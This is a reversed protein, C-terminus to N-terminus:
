PQPIEGQGTTEQAQAAALRHRRLKEWLCKRSIGLAAAAKGRHGNVSWLARELVQKEYAFMMQQFPSAVAM